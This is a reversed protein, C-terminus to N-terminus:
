SSKMGKVVKYLADLFIDAHKQGFLLTPRLRLTHTYAGGSIVGKARLKDIMQDRAGASEATIAVFTGRGRTSHFLPAFEKEMRKLQEILYKGTKRVHELLDDRSIIDIIKELLIVKGPDGMWTNFTRFPQHVRMDDNFFYGGLQMKKSFTVIDPPTELDFYEHCWFQGTPGGGTQVEDMILAAGNKRCIAQLRQFFYPSAHNDGGESQIPEVIVGAVPMGNKGWKEFLEEVGALCKDDEEKNHRENNELPYCYQPFDAMPWDFAPIDIKQIFKSRTTSLTGLSRGHFAHKFSMIALKPAGPPQNCLCSEEEEKSFNDSGRERRRYAMFAHKFANENACAGCMMTNIHNLGRPAVMEVIHNMRRPWDEGPFVGLAPRNILCKLDHENCFAQLLEPHNYGLPMTSIQTYTDLFTNGDVDVLYNGISKDYDVFIQTSGAQQVNSLDKLLQQTRPGPVATKMCPGEPEGAIQLVTSVFAKNGIQQLIQHGFASVRCCKSWM